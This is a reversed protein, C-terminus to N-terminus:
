PTQPTPNASQLYKFLDSQIPLILQTDGDLIAPYSEITKMFGFFDRSSDDANYANAFIVAAKADAEGIIEQVSRYARSQIERLLREREGDIKAAEGDGESRFQEAIQNRESIMREYIKESVRDNYNIRKFRFDLLEIGMEPLKGAANAFIEQELANRGTKIPQWGSIAPIDESLEAVPAVDAATVAPAAEQPPRRDKTTRIVEILNNKAVTNRTEGGIIDDLRSLASREDRLRQLYLLPDTVRWRAFCDVVVYLKDQTPMETSPGDWALIRKEVRYPTQVFPVKFHLGPETFPEGIPKGFQLLIAQQTEPLIFTASRFLIVGVIIVVLIIIAGISRM